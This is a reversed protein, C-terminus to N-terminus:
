LGDAKRKSGRKQIVAGCELHHTYPFQDFAAAAVVDHTAAFVALDRALTEPNCSVYVVREFSCLLRCTEADIGARPPDVFVTRINAKSFDIGADLLRQFRRTGTFAESFEEASLKAIQVNSVNNKKIAMTALQVSQKSVETAIVKNFNGALALTFTGGGCYLELLDQDHSDATHRLCWNIMQECVKANPQSFAGETQYLYYHDRSEIRLCEEIIEASSSNDDDDVSGVSEGGKCGVVVKLKRSRGVINASMAAAAAAAVPRWEDVLPQRYIMVVVAQGTTAAVFRVEFLGKALLGTADAALQEFLQQMLENIRECGRPFSKIEVPKKDENWMAYFMGSPDDSRRDDRWVNFNARMRYHLPQSKFVDVDGSYYPQLLTKLIALKEGLQDEYKEVPCHVLSSGDIRPQITFAREETVAADGGSSSSTKRYPM